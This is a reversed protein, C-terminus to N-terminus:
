GRRASLVAEIGSTGDRRAYRCVSRDKIAQRRRREAGQPDVQIVARKLAARLEGATQDVARGLVLRQVRATLRQDLNVTAEDIALVRGLDLDGRAMVRLTAPLRDRIRVARDVRIAATVPSLHLAPALEAAVLTERSPGGDPDISRPDVWAEARDALGATLVVLRAEIMAKARELEIIETVVSGDPDLVPPWVLDQDALALPATVALRAILGDVSEFMHDIRGLVVSM